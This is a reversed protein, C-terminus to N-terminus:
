RAHIVGRGPAAETDLRLAAVVEVVGPLPHAGAVVGAKQVVPDEEEVRDGSIGAAAVDLFLGVQQADTGAGM